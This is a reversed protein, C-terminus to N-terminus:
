TEKRQAFIYHRFTGKGILVGDETTVEVDTCASKNKRYIVKATAKLIRVDKAAALYHYEGTTTAADYGCSAVAYTATVDSLTYICGGHVAGAPNLVQPTVTLEAEAYDQALKTVTVGILGAFSNRQNREKRMQEYDM